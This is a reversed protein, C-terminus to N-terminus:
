RGDVVVEVDDVPEEVFVLEFGVKVDDVAVLLGDDRKLSLVRDVSSSSWCSASSRKENAKFLMCDLRGM